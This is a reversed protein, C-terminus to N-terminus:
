GAQLSRPEPQSSQTAAGECRARFDALRDEFSPVLAVRRDLERSAAEYLRIDYENARRLDRLLAAGLRRGLHELREALSTAADRTVNQPVYHLQLGAFAPRLFYEGVTLSEGLRDVVVHLSSKEVVAIATALDADGMARFRGGNSITNTQANHVFNPFRDLLARLFTAVDSTAALRGVADVPPIRSLYRHLSALRDLPHRIPCCDFITTRPIRPVPFAFHHSTLARASPERALTEAIDAPDIRGDSDARHVAFFADGFERELISEITSGANKMIHYHVIVNRFAFAELIITRPVTICRARRGGRAGGTARTEM